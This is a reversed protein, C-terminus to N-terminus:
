RSTSPRRVRSSRAMPLCGPGSRVLLVDGPRLADLTVEETGRETVREATDPLLTALADLASTAQGLARMELWHGLLM